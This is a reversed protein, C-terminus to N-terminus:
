GAQQSVYDLQLKFILRPYSAFVILAWSVSFQMNVHKLTWQWPNRFPWVPLRDTNPTPLHLFRFTSLDYRLRGTYDPQIAVAASCHSRHQLDRSAPRWRGQQTRSTTTALWASSWNGGAEDGSASSGTVSCSDGVHAAQGVREDLVLWEM